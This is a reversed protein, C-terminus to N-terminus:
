LRRWREVAKKIDASTNPNILWAVLYRGKGDETYVADGALSYYLPLWTTRDECLISQTKKVVSAVNKM